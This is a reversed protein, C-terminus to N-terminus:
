FSLIDSMKVLYNIGDSEIMVDGKLDTRLIKINKDNLMKIVEEHPHGYTNNKGASIVAIEPDLADVLKQSIGNKSGHHPIKIYNLPRLNYSTLLSSVEDSVDNGIDGTLLADFEGYTLIAVVSFDNPDLRTDFIGLVAQDSSRKIAETDSSNKALFEDTPWVIDLQMMGLRMSQGNVGKHVSVRGSGVQDELVRFDQSVSDLGSTVFNNVKYNKMVDILGGYHDKQPHTLVVLEITRDWFPINKSLCDLVKRGPGGDILIQNKGHIALTADGQGVDCAIIRFVPPPYTFVAIWVTATILLLIIFTLKTINTM